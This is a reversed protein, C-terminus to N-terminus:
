INPRYIAKRILFSAPFAPADVIITRYNEDYLKFRADVLKVTTQADDLIYELNDPCGDYITYKELDNVYKGDRYHCEYHGNRITRRAEAKVEEPTLALSGWGGRRPGLPM